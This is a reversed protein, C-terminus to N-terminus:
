YSSASGAARKTADDNPSWEYLRNEPVELDPAGAKGNVVPVKMLMAFSGTPFRSAIYAANRESVTADTLALVAGLVGRSYVGSCITLTGHPSYPNRLRALFAVDEALARHKGDRWADETQEAAIQEAGVAELIVSEHEMWQPRFERGGPESLRFIEGNKLDTVEVQQIPLDKLKRQVRDAVQNWGIGGLVILHGTLQDPVVEAALWRTVQLGPNAARIQGWLEILADLDAYRYTETYNPNGEEALPSRSNAPVEPCIITIPGTEFAWISGGAPSDVVGRVADRLEILEQRLAQFRDRQAETLDRERPLRPTGDAASTRSFFLAYAHLREAPPLKPNTRSEWSSITAVAM